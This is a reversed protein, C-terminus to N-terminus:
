IVGLVVSIDDKSGNNRAAEIMKNCTQMSIGTEAIIDEMNDVTLHDHIGDSTMLVPSNFPSVLSYKIKFIGANGGGFCSTIENKRSFNDADQQSLQGTELLFNLTTDDKTLQKLYKGSQLSYVRSNGVYFLEACDPRLSIGALTTAMGNFESKTQSLAILENNIDIFLESSTGRLTCLKSAVFHSAVYGANNGGVGDAVAIIGNNVECSFTGEAIISKGVVIRDENEAKNVGKQTCAYVLM